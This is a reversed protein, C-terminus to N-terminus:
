NISKPNISQPIGQPFRAFKSMEKWGIAAPYKVRYTGKAADNAIPITIALNIPLTIIGGFGHGISSLNILAAWTSIKGPDDSTTSVIIEASGISDKFVTIMTSNSTYQTVIVDKKVNSTRTDNKVNGTRTDHKVYNSLPLIMM